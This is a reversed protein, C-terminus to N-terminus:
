TWSAVECFEGHKKEFAATEKTLKEIDIDPFDREDKATPTASNSDRRYKAASAVSHRRARRRKQRRQEQSAGSGM